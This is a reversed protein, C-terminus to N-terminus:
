NSKYPKRGHNLGRAIRQAMLVFTLHRGSEIQTDIVPPSPRGGPTNSILVVAMVALIALLSCVIVRKPTIRRPGTSRSTETDM